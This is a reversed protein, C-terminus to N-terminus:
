SRGGHGVLERPNLWVLWHTLGVVLKEKENTSFLLLWCLPNTAHEKERTEVTEHEQIEPQQSLIEEKGKREKRTTKSSAGL